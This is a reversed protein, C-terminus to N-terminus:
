RLAELVEDMRANPNQQYVGEVEARVIALITGAMTRYAERQGHKASAWEEEITALSCCFEWCVLQKAVSERLETM